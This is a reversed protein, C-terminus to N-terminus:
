GRESQLAIWYNVPVSDDGKGIDTSFGLFSEEYLKVKYGSSIIKLHELKMEAKFSFSKGEEEHVVRSFQNVGTSTTDLAELRIESGEGVVLISPANLVSSAKLVQKFAEEPMEFEVADLDINPIKYSSVTLIDPSTTVFKVHQKAQGIKVYGEDFTLSPNAFLSLTALFKPLDHIAFEQPFEDPVTAAAMITRSADVTCLLKGAKFLMHPNIICFNKLIDLTYHSLIM